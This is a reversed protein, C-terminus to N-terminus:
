DRMTLLYQNLTAGSRLVAAGIRSMRTQYRDFTLNTVIGDPTGMCIGLGTAFLACQSGALAEDGTAAFGDVIIASGAVGYSDVVSNSDFEDLKDGKLFYVSKETGIYLGHTVGVVFQVTSNDVALYDRLDVYGYGLADTAYIFAGCAIVIRGRHYTLDQGAPPADFWQTNLPLALAGGAFTAAGATTDAVLAQYMVEGNPESLYLAVYPADIDSPWSFALGADAPLDIRVAMGTGSEQGDHGMKTLAYQYTGARLTGATITARPQNPEAPMGWNQAAGAVLMGTQAGDTWYVRDNVKLFRVGADSMGTRLTETSYDAHLRKLAGNQVFLCMDDEAWVSHAAGAVKVTQGARRAVRGSDDLDVNVAAVLDTRQDIGGKQKVSRDLREADVTTRIGGFTSYKKTAM